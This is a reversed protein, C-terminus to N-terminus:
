ERHMLVEVSSVKKKLLGYKKLEPDEKLIKEAEKRAQQTMIMDTPNALKFDYFYGSQSKGYVEGPGRHELDIEALKFGDNNKELAKLRPMSISDLSTPFLFCYSQYESRGVRGRFQHLQALGFREAGEIMMITANPIDVGVEVVTTSVLIDLKGDRFQDMIKAKEDKKLRGHLLGIKLDPFIEQSLKQYEQTASKVGLKDMVKLPKSVIKNHVQNAFQIKKKMGSVPNKYWEQIMQIQFLKGNIHPGINKIFPKIQEEHRLFIDWRPKKSSKSPKERLHMGVYIDLKNFLDKIQFMTAASTNVIDINPKYNFSVSGEADFFGALWKVNLM